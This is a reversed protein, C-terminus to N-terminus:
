IIYIKISSKVIFLFKDLQTLVNRYFFLSVHNNSYILDNFENIQNYIFPM